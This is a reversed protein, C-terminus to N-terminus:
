QGDRGEENWLSPTKDYISAVQYGAKRVYWAFEDPGHVIYVTEPSVAAVYSLLGEFDAHDSLPIMADGRVWRYGRGGAAWGTVAATRLRRGDVFAGAQRLSPAVVVEGAEVVSDLLRSHEFGVGFREYVKALRWTEREVATRYGAESLIRLVEQGKGLAYCFLIPTRGSALTSEVFGCLKEVVEDRRPFRHEPLGYTCEMILTDAKPIELAEAAATEQPCFDGSYLLRRGGREVLIQASGLIHGAPHLTVTARDMQVPRGYPVPMEAPVRRPPGLGRAERRVAEREAALALTAPTALITEHRGTHDGHAHSVFSFDKKRRADLWLGLSHVLIDSDHYEFM